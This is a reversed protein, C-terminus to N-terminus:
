ANIFHNDPKLKIVKEDKGNIEVIIEVRYDPPATFNQWNFNKWHFGLNSNFKPLNDLAFSLFATIGM